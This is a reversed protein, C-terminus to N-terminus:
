WRNGVTVESDDGESDMVVFPAGTRAKVRRQALIEAAVDYRKYALSHLGLAVLQSTPVAYSSLCVNFTEELIEMMTADGSSFPIVIAGTSPPSACALFPPVESPFLRKFAELAGTSNYVTIM